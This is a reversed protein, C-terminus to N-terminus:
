PSFARWPSESINLAGGVLRALLGSPQVLGLQGIGAQHHAAIREPSLLGAYLAVEDLNGAFNNYGASKGIILAGSNSVSGTIGVLNTRVNTGDVYVIIGTDRDFLVVVHHWAGNDVRVAPGYVERTITGDGYNVRIRGVQGVDDTVLVQWFPRPNNSYPRKSIIAREGTPTAKVWAEVSFDQDGFDLSGDAPDGMDVRDNKGDFGGATNPDNVIAGPAGLVVGSQYTGVTGGM